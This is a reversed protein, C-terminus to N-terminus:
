RKRFSGSKKKYIVDSSAADATFACLPLLCLALLLAFLKCLHKM